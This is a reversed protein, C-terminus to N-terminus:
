MRPKAGSTNTAQSLLSKGYKVGSDAGSKCIKAAVDVDTLGVLMFVLLSKFTVRACHTRRSLVCVSWKSTAQCLLRRLDTDADSRSTTDM